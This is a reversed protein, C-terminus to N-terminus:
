AHNNNWDKPISHEPIGFGSNLDLDRGPHVQDLPYGVVDQLIFGSLLLWETSNIKVPSTSIADPIPTMVVASEPDFSAHPVNKHRMPVM